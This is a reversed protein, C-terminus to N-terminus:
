HFDALLKMGCAAARRGIEVATGIDCNGGGFGRGEGDYPDNWIRVRIWNIGSDSLIRFLDEENGDFDYYRVGSAEEALVSSVDMGFIFNDPLNEVKRVYLSGAEESAASFPPLPILSLVLLVITLLRGNM